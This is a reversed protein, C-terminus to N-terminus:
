STKVCVVWVSGQIPTNNGSEAFVKVFWGTGDALPRSQLTVGVGSSQDFGGGTLKEGSQCFARADTSDGENQVSYGVSRITIASAPIGSAPGPTAAIQAASQGGLTQADVAVNATQATTATDATKATNATKAVNATKALTAVKATNATKAKDATLARKALPVINQAFGTATLAVFLALMSIVLAPTIRPKGPRFRHV